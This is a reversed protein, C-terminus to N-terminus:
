VAVIKPWFLTFAVFGPLIWRLIVARCAQFLRQAVEFEIRFSQDSTEVSLFLLRM